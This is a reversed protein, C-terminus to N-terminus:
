AVEMVEVVELAVMYLEFAFATIEPLHASCPAAAAAACIAYDSHWLLMRQQKVHHMGSCDAVATM